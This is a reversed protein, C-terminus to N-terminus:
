LYHWYNKTGAIRGEGGDAQYKSDTGCNREEIILHIRQKKQRQNLYIFNNNVNM